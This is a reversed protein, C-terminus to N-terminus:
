EVPEFFIEWIVLVMGALMVLPGLVILYLLSLLPFGVLAALATDWGPDAWFFWASTLVGLIGCTWQYISLLIDSRPRNEAEQGCGAIAPDSSLYRLHVVAEWSDRAPM